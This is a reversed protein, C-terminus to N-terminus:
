RDSVARAVADLLDRFLDAWGEAPNLAPPAPGAAARSGGAGAGGAPGRGGGREERGERAGNGGHERAAERGEM